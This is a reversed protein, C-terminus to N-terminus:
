FRYGYRLGLHNMGPNREDALDAHSIHSLLVSLSHHGFRWGAEAASRFLFRAGLHTRDRRTGVRDGTHVLGGFSGALFPGAAFDYQWTLGGYLQHTIGESHAIFGLHPRPAFAWALWGPSAFLLEAGLGAGKESRSKFFQFGHVFAGLRVESLWAPAEARAPPASLLLALALGVCWGRRSRSM